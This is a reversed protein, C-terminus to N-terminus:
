LEVMKYPMSLYAIARKLSIVEDKFSGLGVNCSFCLLGRVKGDKHDHDIYWRPAEKGCIACRNLQRNMIMEFQNQTLGYKGLRKRHYAKNNNNRKYLPTKYEYEKQKAQTCVKCYYSLGDLKKYFETHSKTVLCGKCLKM